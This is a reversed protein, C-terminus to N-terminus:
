SLAVSSVGRTASWVPWITRGPAIHLAVVMVKAAEDPPLAALLKGRAMVPEYIAFREVPLPQLHQREIELKGAVETRSNLINTVKSGAASVGVRHCFGQQRAPDAAAGAPTVVPTECRELWDSLEGCSPFFALALESCMM